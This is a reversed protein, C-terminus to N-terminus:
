YSCGPAVSTGANDERQHSQPDSCEWLLSNVSGIYIRWIPSISLAFVYGWIQDSCIGCLTLSFLFLRLIQQSTITMCYRLTILTFDASHLMFFIVCSFRQVRNNLSHYPCTCVPGSHWCLVTFADWLMKSLCQLTTRHDKFWTYFLKSSM